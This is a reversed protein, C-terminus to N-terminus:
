YKTPELIEEGIAMDALIMWPCKEDQKQSSVEARHIAQIEM